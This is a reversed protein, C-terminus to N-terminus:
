RAVESDESMWNLMVLNKQEADLLACLRDVEAGRRQVEGLANISSGEELRTVLRSMRSALDAAESALESSLSEIKMQTSQIMAELKSAANM